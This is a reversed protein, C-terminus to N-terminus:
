LRVPFAGCYILRPTSKMNVDIGGLAQEFILVLMNAGPGAKQRIREIDKPNSLMTQLYDYRNLDDKDGITEIFDHGLYEIGLDTCMPWYPYRTMSARREEETMLLVPTEDWQEQSYICAEDGDRFQGAFVHITTDPM